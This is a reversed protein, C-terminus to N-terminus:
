AHYKEIIWYNDEKSILRIKSGAEIFDGYSKVELLHDNLLAKGLPRIDTYAVAIEGKLDTLPMMENAKADALTTTLILRKFLSSNLMQKAGFIIVTVFGILSVAMVALAKTMEEPPTASFDFNVNRIMTLFLGTFLFIIGSIGTVGFGPVVFIELGILILGLLIIMIEWNEALGDLYLPTLYLIGAIFAALIPFGIGPTQLEFYIGAFVALLLISSVAPNGMFGIIKDLSSKEVKIIEYDTIGNLALVNEISTAIGDCFGYKIAEEPTLTVVKTSDVLGEVIVNPDVMAEAILPNRKYLYTTDGNLIVTDRGQAEATARMKGRMYSQYKDPAAEGSQNVVTAAGISAGKKMYIKDCAISILAGASAANNEVFVYVPMPMDLIIKRISDADTVLGGYTDMHIIVLDAKTEIAFKLAKDAIRTASPAIEEKIDFVVVKKGKQAFLFSHSFILFTFLLFHKIKNVSLMEANVDKLCLIKM